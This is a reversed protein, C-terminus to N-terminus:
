TPQEHTKEEAIIQEAQKALSEQLSAIGATLITAILGRITPHGTVDALRKLTRTDEESLKVKLNLVKM